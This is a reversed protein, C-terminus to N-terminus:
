HFYMYRVCFIFLVALSGLVIGGVIEFPASQETSAKKVVEKDEEEDEGKNLKCEPDVTNQFCTKM